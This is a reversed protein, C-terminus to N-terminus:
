RIVEYAMVKNGYFTPVLLLNKEPIFKIDAAGISDPSSTTDLILPTSGDKRVVHVMGNWSSVFLDGNGIAEVGDPNMLSDAKLKIQKTELDATVVTQKNWLAVIFTDGDFQLGNPGDLGTLLTSVVGNELVHVKGSNTDSVYVKGDPGTAIDNLFQAGEVPYTHTVEGTNTDIEVIRDIDAVYLKGEFIGMGKPANLGTTFEVHTIQGDTTLESIFGNGDKADPQGNINSVYLVDKDKDYIVSECTTMLTDTQWKFTLSPVTGESERSGTGCASIILAIVFLLFLNKM